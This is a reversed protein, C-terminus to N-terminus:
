TKNIKFQGFLLFYTQYYSSVQQQHHLPYGPSTFISMSFLWLIILFPLLWKLTEGPEAILTFAVAMFVMAAFSIGATIIPLRNGSSRRYRDGMKGAIPPTIVMILGQALFLLFTFHSFGFEILLKPQYNYYAIWGIIVSAYLVALSM